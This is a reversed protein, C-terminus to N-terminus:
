TSAIQVFTMNLGCAGGALVSVLATSSIVVATTLEEGDLELRNIRLVVVVIRLGIVTVGLIGIISIHIPTEPSAPCETLHSFGVIVLSLSM